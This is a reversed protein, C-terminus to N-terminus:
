EGRASLLARVGNNVDMIQDTDYYSVQSILGSMSSFFTIRKTKQLGSLFTRKITEVNLVLWWKRHDFIADGPSLDKYLHKM